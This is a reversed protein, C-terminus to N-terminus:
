RRRDRGLQLGVAVLQGLDLLCSASTFGLRGHGIMCSSASALPALRLELM